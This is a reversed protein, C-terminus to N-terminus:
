IKKHNITNVLGRAIIWPAKAGINILVAMHLPLDPYALELTRNFPKEVTCPLPNIFPM